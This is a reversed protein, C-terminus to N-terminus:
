GLILELEQRVERGQPGGGAGCGGAGPGRGAGCGRAGTGEEPVMDGLELLEESLM